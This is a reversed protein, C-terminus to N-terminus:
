AQKEPELRKKWRRRFAMWFGVLMVICSIWLLNIYPFIITKIIVFDPDEQYIDVKITFAKDSVERFRLRYDLERMFDDQYFVQDGKLIFRPEAKIIKNFHTILEISATIEITQPNEQHAADGADIHTLVMKNPGLEITDHLMLELEHLLKSHSHNHTHRDTDAFTIYTFIDRGLYIKAYPNYVNGMRDNLKITPFSSFALYLEGESNKKLFDIHYTIDEGQFTRGKYTVHYEGMPLVEDKILLLNENEAFQEGLFYGSTNKSIIEKQSFTLVIAILFLAIGLHSVIAPNSALQGKFRLLLDLASFFAFLGSFLFLIHAPARMSTFLVILTTSVAALVISLALSRFYRSPENKGWKLFHTFGILLATFVAFPLQWSNYHQVPDIPPSLQTGLIKNIVPISTSFTIQFASLILVLAGIFLWFERTLPEENEKSKINNFRKILMLASLGLFTFIYILIQRGMGDNGFSHVSTESMVGSRTLFTSYVVFIFALLTFLIAPFINQQKRRVVLMLHLAAVLIVWPVLSANEVPDWAWFGGFTLSEYAWVGGLLIGGGLFFVGLHTWPLSPQIWGTYDKKWLGAFAYAFPILAAAFGIFLIPPHSLMWFNRLLPNLGNGDVILSLYNPNQFFESELNGPVERMLVFPSMGISFSGLTVGLMMATMFVQSLSFITMVPTEWKGAFRILLLGFIVQCLAWFLFSGEQGAWFAAIKYGWSLSNEVHVWVYRYEYYRNLLMIMLMLSALILFISHATFLTRAWKRWSLSEQGQKSAAAWYALTALIVAVFAMLIGFRGVQGLILHEGFYQIDM